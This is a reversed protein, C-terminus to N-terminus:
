NGFRVPLATTVSSYRGHADVAPVFVMSRAVALAIDDLESYGSSTGVAALDVRGQPDLHLALTTTGRIGEPRFSEYREALRQAIEGQNLLSPGVFGPPAPFRLLQDSRLRGSSSLTDTPAAPPPPAPAANGFVIPLSIWVAVPWRGNLAPRFRMLRAVGLAAADLASLGSGARIRGALVSGCPDVLLWLYVTGDRAPRFRRYEEVIAVRVRERNLLEPPRTYPTFVPRSLITAPFIPSRCITDPRAAAGDEQATAAAPLAATAACSLLGVALSIRALM